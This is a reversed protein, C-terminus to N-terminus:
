FIAIAAIFGFLGFMLIFCLVCVNLLIKTKNILNGFIEALIGNNDDTSWQLNNM